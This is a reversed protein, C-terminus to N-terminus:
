QEIDKEKLRRDYEASDLEIIEFPFSVLAKFDHADDHGSEDDKECFWKLNLDMENLDHHEELKKLLRYIMRASQTGIYELQIVVDLVSDGAWKIKDIAGILHEYFEVADEPISRGRLDILGEVSDVMVYPTKSTKAILVKENIKEM